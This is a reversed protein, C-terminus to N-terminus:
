KGHVVNFLETLFCMLNRDSAIFEKDEQLLKLYIQIAQESNPFAMSRTLAEVFTDRASEYLYKHLLLIQRYARRAEANSPDYAGGAQMVSVILPALHPALTPAAEPPLRRLFIIAQEAIRPYELRSRLIYGSMEIAGNVAEQSLVGLVQEAFHFYRDIAFRVQRAEESADVWTSVAQVERLLRETFKGFSNVIWEQPLSRHLDSCAVLVAVFSETGPLEVQDVIQTLLPVGAEGTAMNLARIGKAFLADDGSTIPLLQELASLLFPVHAGSNLLGGNSHLKMSGIFVLIYDVAAKGESELLKMLIGMAIELLQNVSEPPAIMILKSVCLVLDPNNLLGLVSHVKEFTLNVSEAFDRAKVMDYLLESFMKMQPEPYEFLAHKCLTDFCATVIEKNKIMNMRRIIFKIFATMALYEPRTLPPDKLVSAFSQALQDVDAVCVYSSSELLIHFVATVQHLDQVTPIIGQMFATFGERASSSVQEVIKLLDDAYADMQFADEDLDVFYMVLRPFVAEMAKPGTEPYREVCYKVFSLTEESVNEIRCSLMSLAAAFYRLFDPTEILQSGAIAILSAAAGLLEPCDSRDCIVAIKSPLDLQSLLQMKMDPDIASSLLSVLLLLIGIVDNPDSKGQKMMEVCTVYNETNTVVRVILEIVPGQLLPTPDVWELLKTLIRCAPAALNPDNSVLCNSVFEVVLSESGDLTMETQLKQYMESKDDGVSVFMELFRLVENHDKALLDTWFTPWVSPYSAFMFHVQASWLVSHFLASNAESDFTRRFEQSFLLNHIQGHMDSPIEEPKNMLWDRITTLAFIITTPRQFSAYKSVCWVLGEPSWQVKLVIESCRNIMDPTVNGGQAGSVVAVAQEIEEDSM